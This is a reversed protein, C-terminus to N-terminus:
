SYLNLIGLSPGFSGFEISETTIGQFSCLLLKKTHNRKVKPFTM